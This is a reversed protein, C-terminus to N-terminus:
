KCSIEKRKWLISCVSYWSVNNVAAHLYNLLLHLRFITSVFQRYCQGMNLIQEILLSFVCMFHVFPVSKKLASSPLWHFQTSIASKSADTRCLESVHRTLSLSINIWMRYVLIRYMTQHLQQVVGDWSLKELCGMTSLPQKIIRGGLLFTWIFCVPQFSFNQIKRPPNKLFFCWLNLHFIDANLRVVVILSISCNIKYWKFLCSYKGIKGFFIGSMQHKRGEYRLYACLTRM